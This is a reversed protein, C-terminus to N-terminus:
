HFILLCCGHLHWNTTDHVFQQGWNAYNCVQLRLFDDRQTSNSKLGSVFFVWRLEETKDEEHGEFLTFLSIKRMVCLVCLFPFSWLLNFFRFGALQHWRFFFDVKSRWKKKILIRREPSLFLFFLFFPWDAATSTNNTLRCPLLLSSFLLVCYLM